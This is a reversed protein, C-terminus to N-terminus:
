NSSIEAASPMLNEVFNKHTSQDTIEIELPNLEPNGNGFLTAPAKHTTRQCKSTEEYARVLKCMAACVYFGAGTVNSPTDKIYTSIAILLAGTGALTWEIAQKHDPKVPPKDDSAEVLSLEIVTPEKDVTPEKNLRSGCCHTASNVIPELGSSLMASAFTLTALMSWLESDLETASKITVGTMLSCVFINILDYRNVKGKFLNYISEIMSLADVLNWVYGAGAAVVKNAMENDSKYEATSLCTMTTGVSFYLMLFWSIAQFIKPNEPLQPQPAPAEIDPKM